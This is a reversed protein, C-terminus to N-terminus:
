KCLINMTFSAKIPVDLAPSSGECFLLQGNDSSQPTVRSFLSKQM